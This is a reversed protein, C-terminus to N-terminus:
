TRNYRRYEAMLEAAAEHPGPHQKGTYHRWTTTRQGPRPHAVGKVVWYTGRPSGEIESIYGIFDRTGDGNERYVLHCGRYKNDAHVSHEGDRIIHFQDWFERPLSRMFDEEESENVGLGFARELGLLDQAAEEKTDRYPTEPETIGNAARWAYWRRGMPMIWGIFVSSVEGNWYVKIGDTGVTSSPVFRFVNLVHQPLSSMFDEVEGDLLAKVIREANM